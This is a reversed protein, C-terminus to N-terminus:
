TLLHFNNTITALSVVFCFHYAVLQHEISEFSIGKNKGVTQTGPTRTFIKTIMIKIFRVSYDIGKRNRYNVRNDRLCSTKLVM